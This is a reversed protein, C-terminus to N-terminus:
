NGDIYARDNHTVTVYALKQVLVRKHLAKARRYRVLVASCKQTAQYESPIAPRSVGSLCLDAHLGELRQLIAVHM